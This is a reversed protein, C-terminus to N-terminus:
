AVDKRSCRELARTVARETLVGAVRRRYAASAHLDSMPEVSEAVLRAFEAIRARDVPAGSLLEEAKSFRCPIPGAGFIALRVAGIGGDRDLAVIAMAGVLAFDGHRRAVELCAHGAGAPPLRFQVATVLEDPELATTLPGRFFEAGPILRPGRRSTAVVRGDLCLLAAPLEAAPDAHAISGAVTGRNRIAPHGVLRLAEALLPAATAGPDRELRRQRTLAGVELVGNEVRVDDLQALRNTDVLAAPRALRFNLMPMLSQGGALVKADGGYRGLLEVAEDV